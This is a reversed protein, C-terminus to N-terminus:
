LNFFNPKLWPSSVGSSAPWSEATAGDYVVPLHPASMGTRATLRRGVSDDGVRTASGSALSEGGTVMETAIATSSVNMGMGATTGAIAMGVTAAGMSVTEMGVMRTSAATMATPAIGASGAVSGANVTTTPIMATAVIM